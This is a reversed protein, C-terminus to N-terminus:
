KYMIYHSLVKMMGLEQTKCRSMVVLAFSHIQTKDHVNQLVWNAFAIEQQM